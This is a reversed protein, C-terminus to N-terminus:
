LLHLLPSVFVYTTIDPGENKGQEIDGSPYLSFFIPFVYRDSKYMYMGVCVYVHVFVCLTVPMVEHKCLHTKDM